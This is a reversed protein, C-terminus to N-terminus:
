CSTSKREANSTIKFIRNPNFLTAAGVNHGTADCVYVAGCDCSGVPFETMKRQVADKTRGVDIGCFPCWPKVNDKGKKM